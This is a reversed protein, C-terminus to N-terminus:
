RTRFTGEADAWGELAVTRPLFWLSVQGRSVCRIRREGVPHAAFSVGQLVPAGQLTRLFMARGVQLARPSWKMRKVGTQKFADVGDEFAVQVAAECGADTAVQLRADAYLLRLGDIVLAMLPMLVFGLLLATWALSSARVPRM